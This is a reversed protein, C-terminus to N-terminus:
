IRPQQQLNDAKSTIFGTGSINGEAYNNIHTLSKKKNIHDISIYDKSDEKKINIATDNTVTFLPIQSSNCQPHAAELKVIDERQEERKIVIAVRRTNNRLKMDFFALFLFVFM